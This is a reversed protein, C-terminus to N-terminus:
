QRCQINRQTFIVEEFGFHDILEQAQANGAALEGPHHADSGVTVFKGGCSKYISLIEKGPMPEELGKRLSSTNIEMCINKRAMEICIAQLKKEDISLSGYYRKPFDIHALADFGGAKVADLITDWYHEYCQEASVGARVMLSPFMDRYWFHVSGLIFDYPLKSYVALQERYLHPEAFEMGCLLTLQKQYKEKVLSFDEFFADPDYFGLGDDNPNHDVHDTFCLARVGTEIARACYAELEATSDASHKTHVHMDCAANV